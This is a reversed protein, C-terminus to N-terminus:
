WVSICAITGGKYLNISIINMQKIELISIMYYIMTGVNLNLRLQHNLVLIKSFSMCYWSTFIKLKQPLHDMIKM